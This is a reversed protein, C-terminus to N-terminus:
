KQKAEIKKLKLKEMYGADPALKAAQEWYIFALEYEKTAYLMTAYHDLIVDSEKGGYLMAHKM